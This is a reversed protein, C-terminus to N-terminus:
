RHAPLGADLLIAKLLPPRRLHEPRWRAFSNGERRLDDERIKERVVAQGPTMGRLYEEKLYKGLGDFEGIVRFHPWEFDTYYYGGRPNDHRTQLAPEPFGLQVILVRSESEGANQAGPRAFRIARLAKVQGRANDARAVRELLADPTTLVGPRARDPDVAFDLAVVADVFNESRALDVLTREPSTVLLGGVEVVDADTFPTRHVAVGNKSRAASDPQVLVDVHAPWGTREPLGWFAAASRHSIVPVHNRTAVVAEIRVLHQQRADLATWEATAISVGRRVRLARGNRADRLRQRADTETLGGRGVIILGTGPDTRETTM